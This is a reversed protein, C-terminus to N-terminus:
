YIERKEDFVSEWIIFANIMHSFIQQLETSRKQLMKESYALEQLNEKLEEESAAIQEYSAVLEYHKEALEEEILKRDSIDTHTGLMRVPTGDEGRRVVRGRTLIWKYTGDKSLM